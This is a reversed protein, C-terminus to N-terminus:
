NFVELQRYIVVESVPKISEASLNTSHFQTEGNAVSATTNRLM